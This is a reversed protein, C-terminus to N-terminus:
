RVLSLTTVVVRTNVDTVAIAVLVTVNTHLAMQHAPQEMKVSTTLVCVRMRVTPEVMAVLVTVSTATETQCVSEVTRALNMVPIWAFIVHQVVIDQHAHAPTPEMMPIVHQKMRVPLSKAPTTKTVHRVGTAERVNVHTRPIEMIWVTEMTRALHVIVRTLTKVTSAVTVMRVIVPTLAQFRRKVNVRMEVRIVRVHIMFKVSTVMTAWTVTVSPTQDMRSVLPVTKVLRITAPTTCVTM